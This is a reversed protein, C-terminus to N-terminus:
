LVAKSITWTTTRFIHTLFSLEVQKMTATYKFGTRDNQEWLIYNVGVEKM